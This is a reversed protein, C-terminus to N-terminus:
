RKLQFWFEILASNREFGTPLPQFPASDYIARQCSNDLQPNGSRQLLRVDRISGDRLIEFTVIVTPATQVRADVENTRWNRAVKERLLQDYYGFRNGFAGGPAMGVAGSGSSTAGYMESSAAAGTPSTLGSTPAQPPTYKQKAMQQTKRDKAERGKLAIADPDDQQARKAPEPKPPAPVQSETDNAVPNFRTGRNPLAIKSVVEIAVTGGGASNPNGWSERVGGAMSYLAAGGFLAVHVLIACLLPRGLAERRDLLDHPATFTM